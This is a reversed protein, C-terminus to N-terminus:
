PDASVPRPDPLPQLRAQKRKMRGMSVMCDDCCVMKFFVLMPEDEPLNVEVTMPTKCVKCQTEVNTKM